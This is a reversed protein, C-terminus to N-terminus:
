SVKSWVGGSEVARGEDRLKYLHATLSRAALPWIMHRLAPAVDDYARPVLDGVAAAGADLAAVVRAERELRHAVYFALLRDPDDVPPGHAPLLRRAGLSRLRALSALYLRMDGEPPDVIITGISAVMDGAILANATRELFALHGPAHGPTFIAELTAPGCAIREGDGLRRAVVIDGACLEATIAHAAVPVSLREALYAAGSVHDVHHHTLLIRVVREGDAALRDLWADLAGREEDYPSAPDIVTLDGQGVVYVNTHTAPPLTPTRVPFCRIWPVVSHTM